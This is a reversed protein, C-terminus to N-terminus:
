VGGKGKMLGLDVFAVLFAVLAAFSVIVGLLTPQAITVGDFVVDRFGIGASQFLNVVQGPVLYLAVWLGVNARGRDRLRKAMIAIVPYLLALGVLLAAPGPGAGIAALVVGLLISVVIGVLLVCLVGIWFSKRGIKGNMNFFLDM